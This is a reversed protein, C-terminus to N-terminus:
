CIGAMTSAADCFNNHEADAHSNNVKDMHYLPFRASMKVCTAQSRLSIPQNPRIESFRSPKQTITSYSRFPQGNDLESPNRTVSDM